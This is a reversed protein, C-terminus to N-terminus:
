QGCSDKKACIENLEFSVQEMKDSTSYLNVNRTRQEGGGGYTVLSPLAPRLESSGGSLECTAVLRMPAVAEGEPSHSILGLQVM